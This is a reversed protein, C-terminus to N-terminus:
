PTSGVNGNQPGCYGDCQLDADGEQWRVMLTFTVHSRALPVIRIAGQIPYQNLRINIRSTYQNSIYRSECTNEWSGHHQHPQQKDENDNDVHRTKFFYCGISPYQFPLLFFFTLGPYAMSLSRHIISTKKFLRLTTHSRATHTLSRM